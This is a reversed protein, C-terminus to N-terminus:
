KVPLAKFTMIISVTFELAHLDNHQLLLLSYLHPGGPLSPDSVSLSLPM